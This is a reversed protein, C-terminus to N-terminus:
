PGGTWASPYCSNAVFVSPPPELRDIRITCDRFVIPPLCREDIGYGFPILSVGVLPCDLPGPVYAFPNSWTGEETGNWIAVQFVQLSGTAPVTYTTGTTEAIPVGNEYVRFGLGPTWTPPVQWSLVVASTAADYAGSLVPPLTPVDADAPTTLAVLLAM